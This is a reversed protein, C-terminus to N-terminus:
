GEPHVDEETERSLLFFPVLAVAWATSPVSSPPLFVVKFLVCPRGQIGWCVEWQHYLHLWGGVM